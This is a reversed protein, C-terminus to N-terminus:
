GKNENKLKNKTENVVWEESKDPYALHLLEHVIDEETLDRDHYIVALEKDSHIGVFYRDEESIDDPFTVQERPISETFIEYDNLGLKNQWYKVIEDM